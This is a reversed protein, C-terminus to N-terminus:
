LTAATVAAIAGYLLMPGVTKKLIEGEVNNLGLVSCVAVINHIAVMNGMAGGVSQLALLTTRELGMRTAISDQIPGFTLNSITCSGAFFSGLAGLYTALYEWWGGTGSALAHGILMASSREGGVMMMRVFVLAGLLALIPNRMRGATESWVRGATGPPAALLRWSILSILVFPILSPVYLVQHTWDTDTGFIGRLRLVLAPSISFTGISGLGLDWAPTAATLLGRLGLAPIRTALLVLVTGWIPFLAKVIERTAPVDATDVAADKEDGLGIDHRALWVAALLGILGGAVAPFEDDVLALLFMPVVSAAIALYIFALNRRIEQWSLLLRFALLPIICAAACHILATKWAVARFEEASLGLQGFGFWTPTGVAGFSVPVSNLILCAMAVRLAPFGLGVLLPGALAAPTGFGSAGEILFQFSWGIIVVQAVRDSSLHNLWRRITEMAGCHEMTRFFFIAGWVILIPTLAVLLGALVSASVLTADTGFWALRALCAALAALPLAKASPMPTKKTMLFVLLLIPGAAFLLDASPM